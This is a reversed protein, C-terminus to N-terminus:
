QSSDNEKNSHVSEASISREPEAMADEYVSGANGADAEIQNELDTADEGAEKADLREREATVFKLLRPVLLSGVVLQMPHWILLPLTYLGMKPSGQYISTILPIGLAVTKQVCGYVGMVRLEPEDRFLIRLSYWALVMNGTMLLFQFVIMLLVDGVSTGSKTMFTKAFVAYVIFVLCYEQVKKFRRKYKAFLERIRRIFKQLLQGVVLPVVVRMTLNFFVQGLSSSGTTGLYMLILVPSLFIGVINGFTANFVAAGENGGASMTLVIVINIAMPVCSCIVMGAALAPDLVKVAVLFRSVGFVIASIIFFNYFQVFGNFKLRKFAKSFEETKLGLGSLLFIIIVAVWTSTINPVLYIAGLPPYAWAVLIALLVLCPFEYKAYILSFNKTFKRWRTPEEEDSAVNAVDTLEVEQLDKPEIAPSDGSLSVEIEAESISNLSDDRTKDDEYHAPLRDDDIMFSMTRFTIARQLTERINYIHDQLAAEQLQM